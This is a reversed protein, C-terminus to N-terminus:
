GAILRIEIEEIPAAAFDARFADDDGWRQKAVVRRRMRVTTQTTAFPFPQCRVTWPTGTPSLHVAPGDPPGIQEGDGQELDALGLHLSFTDFIQLLRYAEWQEAETFGLEDVLRAQREEEALVFQRVPPKIQEIPKRAGGASMVGYRNRQLGSVHMSVLLAAAPSEACLVDACARYSSLLSPLPVSFFIQPRGEDDLRPHQEWVAWGDDHRAAAVILAERVPKSLGTDLTWGAALQGSVQGHDPQLILQYSDGLDRVLV